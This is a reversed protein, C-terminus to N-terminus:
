SGSRWNRLGFFLPGNWRTGTIHRAVASLSKFRQGGYEYGGDAVVVEHTIGGHERVLRTGMLLRHDQGAQATMARGRGKSPPRDEVLADLRKQHAATLGGFALEQIRQGLGRILFGRRYAPPERGFYETWMAKLEDQSRAQLDAIQRLISVTM